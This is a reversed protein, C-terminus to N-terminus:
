KTGRLRATVTGGFRRVRPNFDPRKGSGSVTAGTFPEVRLRELANRLNRAMDSAAERTGAFVDYDLTALYTISGGGWAVLESVEDLSELQVVPLRQEFDAPLDTCVHCGLEARLYAVLEAEVDVELSM